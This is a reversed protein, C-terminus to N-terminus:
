IVLKLLGVCVRMVFVSGKLVMKFIVYDILYIYIFWFFEGCDYKFIYCFFIGCILKNIIKIM